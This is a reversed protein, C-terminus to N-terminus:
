NLSLDYNIVTDGFSISYKMKESKVVQARDLNHDKFFLDIQKGVLM